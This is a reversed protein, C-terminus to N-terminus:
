TRSFHIRVRTTGVIGKRRMSQQMGWARVRRSCGKACCQVGRDSHFVLGRPPQRLLVAMMFVGLVLGTCLMSRMSLGVVRRAYLDLIVCVYLWEEATAIYSIDSVWVKDAGPVAFDWGLLNPVVALGHNSKTTVRFAKRPRAGLGKDRMLRSVPNHGVQWGGQQLERAM